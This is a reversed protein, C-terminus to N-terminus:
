TNMKQQIIFVDPIQQCHVDKLSLTTMKFCNQKSIRQIFNGLMCTAPFLFNYAKEKQRQPEPSGPDRVHPTLTKSCLQNGLWLCNQNTLLHLGLKSKVEVGNASWYTPSSPSQIFFPESTSHQHLLHWSQNTIDTVSM